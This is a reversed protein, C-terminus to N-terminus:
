LRVNVPFGSGDIRSVAASPYAKEFDTGLKFIEFNRIKVAFQSLQRDSKPPYPTVDLTAGGGHSGGRAAVVLPVKWCANLTDIMDRTRRYSFGLERGAATISGTRAVAALLDAKGPGIAISRGVLVQAKVKLPRWLPGHLPGDSKSVPACCFSAHRM